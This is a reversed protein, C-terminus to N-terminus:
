AFRECSHFIQGIKMREGIGEVFEYRATRVWLSRGIQAGLGKLDSGNVGGLGVVVFAVEPILEVLGVAEFNGDNPKAVEALEQSLGEDFLAVGDEGVGAGIVYIDSSFDADGEESIRM